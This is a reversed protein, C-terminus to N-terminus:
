DSAFEGGLYNKIKDHSAQHRRKIKLRNGDIKYDFKVGLSKLYRVFEALVKPDGAVEYDYTLKEGSDVCRISKCLPRLISLGLKEARKKLEAESENLEFSQFAERIFRRFFFEIGSDFPFNFAFDIEGINGNSLTYKMQKKMDPSKVVIGERNQSQLRNLIAWIKKMDTKKFYGLNKVQNLGYSSCLSEREQLHISKGSGERHIDFVFYTLAGAEPYNHPVYPSKNGVLECCLVLNNEKLFEVIESQKNAFATSYPCVLGGRSIALIQNGVKAVRINYGDLKEEIVFDKFHKKLAAELVIARRIKKYSHTIQFPDLFATTGEGFKGLKGRFRIYRMSGFSCEQLEHGLKQKLTKTDLGLSKALKTYDYSAM